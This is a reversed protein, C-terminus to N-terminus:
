TLNTLEVQDYGRCLAGLSAEEYLSDLDYEKDDIKIM